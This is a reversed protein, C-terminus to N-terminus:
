MKNDKNYQELYNSGDKSIEMILRQVLSLYNM